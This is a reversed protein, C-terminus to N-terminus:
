RNRIFGRVLSLLTSDLRWWRGQRKTLGDGAQPRSHGPPVAERKLQDLPVERLSQRAFRAARELRDRHAHMTTRGGFLDVYAAEVTLQRVGLVLAERLIDSEKLKRNDQWGVSRHGTERCAELLAAVEEDFFRESVTVTRRDPQSRTSKKAM